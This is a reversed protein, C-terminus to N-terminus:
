EQPLRKVAIELTDANIRPGQMDTIVPEFKASLVNPTLTYSVLMMSNQLCNYGLFECFRANLARKEAVLLLTSSSTILKTKDLNEHTFYTLGSNAEPQGLLMTLKGDISDWGSSTCLLTQSSGERKAEYVPMGNLEFGVFRIGSYSHTGVLRHRLRKSPPQSLKVKLVPPTDIGEYPFVVFRRGGASSAAIANAESARTEVRSINELADKSFPNTSVTNGEETPRWSAAGFNFKDALQGIQDPIKLSADM